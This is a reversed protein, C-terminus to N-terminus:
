GLVKEFCLSVNAVFFSIPTGKKKILRSYAVCHIYSCLDLFIYGSRFEFNHSKDLILLWIRWLAVCKRFIIFILM